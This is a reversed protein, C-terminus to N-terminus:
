VMCNRALANTISLTLSAYTLSATRAFIVEGRSVLTLFRLLYAFKRSIKAAVINTQLSDKTTHRLVLLIKILIGIWELIALIFLIYFKTKFM